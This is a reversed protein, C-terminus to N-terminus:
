CGIRSRGRHDKAAEPLVLDEVPIMRRHRVSADGAGRTNQDALAASSSLRQQQKPRQQQQQQQQHQHVKPRASASSAFSAATSSSSSPQAQRDIRDAKKKKAAALDSARKGATSKASTTHRKSQKAETGHQAIPSASATPTAATADNPQAHTQPRDVGISATATAMTTPTEFRFLLLHDSPMPTAPLPCSTCFVTTSSWAASASSGEPSDSPCVVGFATSDLLRPGTQKGEKTVPNIM